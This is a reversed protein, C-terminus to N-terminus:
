ALFKNIKRRKKAVENLVQGHYYRLGIKPKDAESKVLIIKM